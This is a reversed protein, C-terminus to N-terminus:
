DNLQSQSYRLVDVGVRSDNREGHGAGAGWRGGGGLTEELLEFGDDLVRGRDELGETGGGFGFDQM